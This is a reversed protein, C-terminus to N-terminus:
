HSESSALFISIRHKLYRIHNHQAQVLLSLYFYAILLREEAIANGIILQIRPGM